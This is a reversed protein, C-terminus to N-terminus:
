RRPKCKAIMEQEQDHDQEHDQSRAASHPFIMLLILLM